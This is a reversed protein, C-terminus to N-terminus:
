PAVGRDRRRRRGQSSARRSAPASSGPRHRTASCSRRPARPTRMSARARGGREGHALRGAGVPRHAPRRHPPARRRRGALPARDHELHRPRRRAALDDPRVRPPATTTRSGCRGAARGAGRRRRRHRRRPEVLVGTSTENAIRRAARDAAFAKGTAGLDLEVGHPVRSRAARRTSRSGSGSRPAACACSGGPGEGAAVARLRLRLRDGSRLRRGHPRRRREHRRGRPAGRRGGRLARPERRRSQRGRREGRAARLRRPVQQVRPRDGRARRAAPSGAARLRAPDAVTVMATTGLADFAISRRSM